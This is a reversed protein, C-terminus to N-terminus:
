LISKIIIYVIISFIVEGLFIGILVCVESTLIPSLLTILIIEFLILGITLILSHYSKGLGDM